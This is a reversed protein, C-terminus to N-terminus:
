QTRTPTGMYGRAYFLLKDMLAAYECLTNGDAICRAAAYTHLMEIHMANFCDFEKIGTIVLFDTFFRPIDQSKM